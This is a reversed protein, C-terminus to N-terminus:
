CDPTDVDTAVTDIIADIVTNTRSDSPAHLRLWEDASEVPSPARLVYSIPNNPDGAVQLPLVKGVLAMFAAPTDIARAALYDCGGVMDLARMVMNRIDASDRNLSGKPRGAGPRAGGRGSM